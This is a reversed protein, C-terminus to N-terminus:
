SVMDIVSMDATVLKLSATSLSACARTLAMASRLMMVASEAALSVAYLIPSSKTSKPCRRCSSEESIRSSPRMSSLSSMLVVNRAYEDAM